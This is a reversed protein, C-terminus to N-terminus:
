YHKFMENAHFFLNQVNFFHSILTFINLGQAFNQIIAAEDQIEQYSNM